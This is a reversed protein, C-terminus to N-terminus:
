RRISALLEQNDSLAEFNDEHEIKVSKKLMEQLEKHKQNFQKKMRLLEVNGCSAVVQIDDVKAKLVLNSLLKQQQELNQLRLEKMKQIENLLKAAREDIQAKL